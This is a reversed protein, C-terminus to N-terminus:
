IRPLTHSDRHAQFQVSKKEIRAVHLLGDGEVFSVKIKLHRPENTVTDNLQNCQAATCVYHDAGGCLADFSALDSHFQNKINFVYRSKTLLTSPVPEHEAGLM